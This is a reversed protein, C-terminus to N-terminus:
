FVGQITALTDDMGVTAVSPIMIDRLTM